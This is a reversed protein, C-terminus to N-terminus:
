NNPWDGWISCHGRNDTGSIERRGVSYGANMLAHPSFKLKGNGNNRFAKGFHGQNLGHGAEHLVVTEYDFEGSFLEDNPADQWNFNDNIYIEKIAM